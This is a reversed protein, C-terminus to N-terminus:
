KFVIQITTYQNYKRKGFIFFIKAFKAVIM